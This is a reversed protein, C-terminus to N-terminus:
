WLRSWHKWCSCNSSSHVSPSNEGMIMGGDHIMLIGRLTLWTIGHMLGSRHHYIIVPATACWLGDQFCQNTVSDMTYFVAIQHFAAGLGIFAVSIHAADHKNPQLKPYLSRNNQSVGFLTSTSVSKQRFRSAFWYSRVLGIWVLVNSFLGGSCWLCTHYLHLLQGTESLDRGMWRHYVCSLRSVRANYSAYLDDTFFILLFCLLRRSEELFSFKWPSDELPGTPSTVSFKLGNIMLGIGVGLLFGSIPSSM